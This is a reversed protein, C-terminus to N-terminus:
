GISKGVYKTEPFGQALDDWFADQLIQPYIILDHLDDKHGNCMRSTINM